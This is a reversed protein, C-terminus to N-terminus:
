QLQVRFSDCHIALRPATRTQPHPLGAVAGNMNSNFMFNQQAASLQTNYQQNCRCHTPEWRDPARYVHYDVLYVPRQQMLFMTVLVGLLVSCCVIASVLNFTLDTQKAVEWLRTLEGTQYMNGLELVLSAAVPVLLLTVGHRCLTTYGRKIYKLAISSTYDPYSSVVAPGAM